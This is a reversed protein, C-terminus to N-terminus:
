VMIKQFKKIILTSTTHVKKGLLVLKSGLVFDKPTIFSKFDINPNENVGGNKKQM